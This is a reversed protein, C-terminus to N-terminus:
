QRPQPEAPKILWWSPNRTKTLISDYDLGHKTLSSRTFDESTVRVMLNPHLEQIWQLVARVVGGMDAVHQGAPKARGGGTRVGTYLGCLPPVLQTQLLSPELTCNTCYDHGAFIGGPQVRRYYIELEAKVNEYDHAGDLYVFDYHGEPLRDLVKGDLSNGEIFEISTDQKERM